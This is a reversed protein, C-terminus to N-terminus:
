LHGSLRAGQRDYFAVRRREGVTGYFGRDNVDRYLTPDGTCQESWTACLNAHSRWGPEEAVREAYRQGNKRSRSQWRRSRFLM